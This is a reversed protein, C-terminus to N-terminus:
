FILLRRALVELDSPTRGVAIFIMTQGRDTFSPTELLVCGHSSKYVTLYRTVLPIIM